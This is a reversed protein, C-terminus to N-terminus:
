NEYGSWPDSPTGPSRFRDHGSADPDAASAAAFEFFPTILPVHAGALSWGRLAPLLATARLGISRATGEAEALSGAILYLGLVPHPNGDPHDVVHELREGPLALARLRAPLQPDLTAGPPPRLALHVLYM